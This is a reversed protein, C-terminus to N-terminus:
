YAPPNHSWRYDLVLLPDKSIYSLGLLSELKPYGYPLSHVFLGVIFLTFLFSYTYTYVLKLLKFIRSQHRPFFFFFPIIVLIGPKGWVIINSIRYWHNSSSTLRFSIINESGINIKRNIPMLQSTLTVNMWM